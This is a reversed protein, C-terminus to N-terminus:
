GYQVFHDIVIKFAQAFGELVMQAAPGEMEKSKKDHREDRFAHKHFVLYM